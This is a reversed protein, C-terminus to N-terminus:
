WFNICECCQRLTGYNWSLFTNTMCYITQIECVHLLIGFKYVNHFSFITRIVFLIHDHDCFNVCNLYHRLILASYIQGQFAKILYMKSNNHISTFHWIEGLEIWRSRALSAMIVSLQYLQSMTGILALNFIHVNKSM